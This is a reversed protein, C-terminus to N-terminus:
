SPPQRTPKPPQRARFEGASPLGLHQQIRGKRRVAATLAQLYTQQLSVQQRTWSYESRALARGQQGLYERLEADKAWLELRTAIDHCIRAKDTLPIVCGGGREVLTAPGRTNLCIVPRAAAMAELVAYGFSERLSPQVVVDIDELMAFVQPRSRWGMFRVRDACGFHVALKELRGREPGDGIIWYESDSIRHVLQAFAELALATGKTAVLRGISAIRFPL